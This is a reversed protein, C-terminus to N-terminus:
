AQSLTSFTKKWAPKRFLFILIVPYVFGLLFGIVKFGIVEGAGFESGTQVSHMFLTIVAGIISAWAYVLSMTRGWPLLRLVGFGAIVAVAGYAVVFLVWAILLWLLMSLQTTLNSMLAHKTLEAWTSGLVVSIPGFVFNIVAVTTMGRTRTKSATAKKSGGVGMKGEVETGCDPCFNGREKIEKGCESCFM